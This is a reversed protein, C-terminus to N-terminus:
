PASSATSTACTCTPRTSRIEIGAERFTKDIAFRLDSAVRFVNSINSIFARLEFDLSSGGVDQFM